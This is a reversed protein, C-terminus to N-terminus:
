EGKFIPKRGEKFAALGELRDKTHILREYCEKEVDLAESLSVQVGRDIAEKASRVGLPGNKVIDAAMEMAAGLARGEEVVEQVIGYEKARHSPIRRATFVLEKARAAGALRALRQTGGAGPM